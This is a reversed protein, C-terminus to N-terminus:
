GFDERIKAAFLRLERAKKAHEPSVETESESLDIVDVALNKSGYVVSFLPSVLDIIHTEDKRNSKMVLPTSLNVVETENDYSHKETVNVEEINSRMNVLPEDILRYNQGSYCRGVETEIDFRRNEIVNVEKIKLRTNVLPENILRYNQGSSCRGVLTEIDFRCNETVNVEEINSSTNGLTLRYNQGSSCTGEIELLLEQLKAEVESVSKNTETKKTKRPKPKKKEAIRQEFEAIKEPCASQVLDGPVISNSLGDIDEWSVEFCEKGQAKRRKIIESIPCRVPMKDLPLRVGFQFSTCRLNTFRRLDREAIKPLIYEDTKEPPWEFFRHCTQLLRTRQFPHMGLVRQVMQSDASHCKPKLYADMVQLFQHNSPVSSKDGDINSEHPPINEKNNFGPVRNQKKSGNAKKGLLLEESVLRQLVTSEGFSRVIQCALEPGIGRVGPSYDCGLLVALAIKQGVRTRRSLDTLESSAGLVNESGVDDDHSRVNHDKSDLWEFRDKRLDEQAESKGQKEQAEQVLDTLPDVPSTACPKSTIELSNEPYNGTMVKSGVKQGVRTRHSLDTLESSAGLVNESGIGDEHSRVNHDKSDLWEFRDKRLDEQAESKGQKEQAEQVLDTLSDQSLDEPEREDWRTEELDLNKRSTMWKMVFLMAVKELAYIEICREQELSFSIQTQLSVDMGDLCPIGLTAGLIKAEKIMCSFESGMNRQLSANKNSSSEDRTGENDLHLRRRYTSVKIGPISGDTVFILSCNLAILARIRHFIGKLYLKDKM